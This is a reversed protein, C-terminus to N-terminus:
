HTLSRAALQPTLDCISRPDLKATAICCVLLQLELEFGLRPVEMQRLHPGLSFFFLISNVLPFNVDRVEEAIFGRRWAHNVTPMGKDGGM